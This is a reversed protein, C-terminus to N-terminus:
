PAAGEERRRLDRMLDAPEEPGRRPAEAAPAPAAAEGPPPPEAAPASWPRWAIAAAALAALSLGVILIALWPARRPEPEHEADPAHEADPGREAAARQEPLVSVVRGTPDRRVLGSTSPPEIQEPDWAVERTPTRAARRRTDLQEGFLERVWAGIEEPAAGGGHLTLADSLAGAMELASEHRHRPDRAIAMLIPADFIPPPMLGVTSPPPVDAELLARLTSALDETEFLTQGTLANWLLVGMSFVDARRDITKGLLVEPAIYGAKGKVVGERTKTLRARAKAVGFDTIRGAGDAGVLVNGPTVDRHVLDLSAGDEGALEHAAHLGRLADIAIPLIHEPPRRDPARRLLRDLAPGDVYDMVLYTSGESTGVDVTSVVNPHHLRSAIRAEDLLMDVLQQDSALHPHLVKIAYLRAFGAEGRVRALYVSAM